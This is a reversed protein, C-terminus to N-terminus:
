HLTLDGAQLAAKLIGYKASANLLPQIQGAPDLHTAYEPLASIPLPKPSKMVRALMTATQAPHANAWEATQTMASAYARVLDPHAKAWASTTFWCGVLFEKGIAEYPDAIVRLTNSALADDLQPEPLDAADIRGATVAAAMASFPMEILKIANSHGGNADVWAEVGVTSIEQLGPVAITKGDFDGAARIPSNAAVVLANQHQEAVFLKSGAIIVFPLNREHAAAISVVNSQGIDGSGSAIAAAIAAGNRGAGNIEVDIGAKKFFGLAEALYPEAGSDIPLAIVRVVPMGQAHATRALAMLLACFALAIYRRNVRM